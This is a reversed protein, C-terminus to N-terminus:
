FSFKLGGMIQFGYSPYRNWREYQIGALNNVDLWITFNDNYEYTGGLNIDVTGGLKTETSDPQLAWGGSRGLVDATLTLKDTVQYQGGLDWMVTPMHWAQNQEGSSSFTRLDTSFFIRYREDQYFGVEGHFAWLKLDDYVVNFRKSDITDTIYLPLDSLVKQSGRVQYDIKRAIEGRFGAYRDDVKSNRFNLTDMVFPNEDTISRWSNTQVRNSWGAFFVIQEDVLDHSFEIDSIFRARGTDVAVGAGLNIAFNERNFVYAPMLRFVGRNRMIPGSYRLYEYGLNLQAQDGSGLTYFFRSEFYPQFERSKWVDALTRMGATVIFDVGLDNEVTNRFDLAAGTTLFRQRVEDRTFTTDEEDYGYFHLVDNQIDGRLGISIPGAFYKGFLSARGKSFLQNERAGNSSTYGAHFGYNIKESRGSSYAAEVLPTFQTGFGVKVFANDLPELIPKPLAVPRAAAPTWAVPSFSVPINYQLPAMSDTEVPPLEPNAGVKNADAKLPEYSGVVTIEEQSSGDDVQATVLIPCTLLTALLVRKVPLGSALITIM